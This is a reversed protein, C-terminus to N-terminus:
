ADTAFETSGEIGVRITRLDQSSNVWAMLAASDPTRHLLLSYDLTVQDARYEATQQIELAVGTLGVQSLRSIWNAVESAGASRNLLLLYLAKVYREDPTGSSVMTQARHYFELGANGLIQSLVAEETQSALMNVWTMEEGSGPARGLFTQYWTKVVNERAETSNAIGLAVATQSGGPANLMAVWGDLEAVSGARGLEHLYMAQVTREQSTLDSTPLVASPTGNGSGNDNIPNNGFSNIFSDKPGSTATLLGWGTNGTVNTNSVFATAAITSSGSVPGQAYVGNTGNNLSTDSELTMVASTSGAIVQFGNSLNGSATTNSITADALDAVGIGFSNDTAQVNDISAVAAVGNPDVLIGGGNNRRVVTNEVFLQANATTPQFDIGPGGFNLIACDEIIVVAASIIKIGTLSNQVDGDLSLGRLIVVGTPGANVIIGNTGSVLIGAFTGSGDITISKTITVVGFGGPDLADIEGGAATKSIAGAFTKAPATRSAPNADDGVGSVWTRTAAGGTGLNPTVLTFGKGNDAIRNNGFSFLKGGSVSLTGQGSNDVATLNSLTVQANAGGESTVGNMGNNSSVDSELNMQAGGGSSVTQFGNALNGSALSHSIAAVVNDEARFGFGNAVAHVHDLAATAPVGAPKMLIGGQANDLLDTNSVFLKANADTPEFDIGLGTFNQIDCDEIHVEGASVIRIGNIGSGIGQLTLHRLVVVDTPAAQIVIANTGAALVSALTGTGDITISKTITVAGFGGPDLVQIIGGAATKSIAGAFTKAPATRSAPNADDGVGSVWTRTAQPTLRQELTELDLHVRNPRRQARSRRTSAFWSLAM